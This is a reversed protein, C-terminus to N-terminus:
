LAVEACTLNNHEYKMCSEPFMKEEKGELQVFIPLSSDHVM